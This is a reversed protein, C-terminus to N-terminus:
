NNLFKRILVGQQDVIFKGVDYRLIQKGDGLSFPKVDGLLKVIDQRTSVGVQLAELQEPTVAQADAVRSLNHKPVPPPKPHGGATTAPEPAPQVPPRLSEESCAALMLAAALLTMSRLM